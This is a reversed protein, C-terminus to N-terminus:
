FILTRCLSFPRSHAFVGKRSTMWDILLDAFEVLKTLKKIFMFPIAIANTNIFAITINCKRQAERGKRTPTQKCSGEAQLYLGLRHM